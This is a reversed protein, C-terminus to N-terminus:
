IGDDCLGTTIKTPGGGAPWEVYTETGCNPCTATAICLGAADRREWQVPAKTFGGHHYLAWLAPEVNPLVETVFMDNDRPTIIAM